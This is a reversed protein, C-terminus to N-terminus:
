RAAPKLRQTHSNKQKTNRKGEPCSQEDRIGRIYLSISGANGSFAKAFKNGHKRRIGQLASLGASATLAFSSFINTGMKLFYSQLTRHVAAIKLRELKIAGFRTLNIDFGALL